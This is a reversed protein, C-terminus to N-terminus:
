HAKGPTKTTKTKEKMKPNSPCPWKRFFTEPLGLAPGEVGMDSNLQGIETLVSKGIEVKILICQFKEVQMQIMSQLILLFKIKLFEM